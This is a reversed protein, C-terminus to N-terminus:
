WLGPAAGFEADIAARDTSSLRHCDAIENDCTSGLERVRQQWESDAMRGVLYVEVAGDELYLTVTRWRAINRGDRSADGTMSVRRGDSFMGATFGLKRLLTGSQQSEFVWDIGDDTTIRFYSHPNIIRAGRMQGHVQVIRDGFFATAAHHAFAPLAVCAACAIAIFSATLRHMNRM